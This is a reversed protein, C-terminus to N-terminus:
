RVFNRTDGNDIGISAFGLSTRLLTFLHAFSLKRRKTGATDTESQSPRLRAWNDLHTRIEAKKSGHRTIIIQERPLSQISTLDDSLIAKMESNRHM